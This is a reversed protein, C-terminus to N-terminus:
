LELNDIGRNGVIGEHWARPVSGDVDDKKEDYHRQMRPPSNGLNVPASM